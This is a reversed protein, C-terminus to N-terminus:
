CFVIAFDFPISYMQALTMGYTFEPSFNERGYKDVCIVDDFDIYVKM